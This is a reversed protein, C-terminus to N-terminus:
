VLRVREAHDLGDVAWGGLELGCAVAPPGACTMTNAQAMASSIKAIDAQLTSAPTNADALDRAYQEVYTNLHSNTVITTAM